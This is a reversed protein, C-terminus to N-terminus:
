QHRRYPTYFDPHVHGGTKQGNPSLEKPAARQKTAIYFREISEFVGRLYCHQVEDGLGDRAGMEEEHAREAFHEREQLPGFRNRKPRELTAVLGKAVLGEPRPTRPVDAEV